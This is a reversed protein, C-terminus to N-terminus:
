LLNEQLIFSGILQTLKELGLVLCLALLKFIKLSLVTSLPFLHLLFILFYLLDLAFYCFQFTEDRILLLHMLLCFVFQPLLFCLQGFLKFEHSM